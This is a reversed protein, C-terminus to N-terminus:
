LRQFIFNELELELERERERERESERERERESAREREWGLGSDRGFRKADRETYRQRQRDRQRQGERERMNKEWVHIYTKRTNMKEQLLTQTKPINLFITRELAKTLDADCICMRMLHLKNRWRRKPTRIKNCNYFFILFFDSVRCLSTLANM